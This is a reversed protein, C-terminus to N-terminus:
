VKEGVNIVDDDGEVPQLSVEVVLGLRCSCGEAVNVLVIARNLLGTRGKEGPVARNECKFLELAKARFWSRRRWSM